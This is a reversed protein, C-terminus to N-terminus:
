ETRWSGANSCMSMGQPTLVGMVMFYGEEEGGKFVGELVAM